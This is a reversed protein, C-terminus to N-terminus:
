AAHVAACDSVGAKESAAVLEDQTSDLEANADKFTASDRNEAATIQDGNLKNIKEVAALTAKWDEQGTPPTGLAKLDDVWHQFTPAVQEVLWTSVEPFQSADPDAPDFDAVPFPQWDHKDDLAAECM